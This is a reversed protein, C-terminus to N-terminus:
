HTCIISRRRFEERKWEKIDYIDGTEDILGDDKM